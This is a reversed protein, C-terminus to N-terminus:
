LVWQKPSDVFALQIYINQTEDTETNDTTQRHGDMEQKALLRCHTWVYELQSTNTLQRYITEIM